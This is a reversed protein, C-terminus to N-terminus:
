DDLRRIDTLELRYLLLRLLESQHMMQTLDDIIGFNSDIDKGM